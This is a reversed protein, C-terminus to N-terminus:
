VASSGRSIFRQWTIASRTNSGPKMGAGTRQSPIPPPRMGGLINQIAHKAPKPLAGLYGYLAM